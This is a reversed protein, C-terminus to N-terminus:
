ERLKLSSPLRTNVNVRARQIQEAFLGRVSTLDADRFDAGALNTGSFDCNVFQMGNFNANSLDSGLFVTNHLIASNFRAGSLRSAALNASELNSDVFDAATLDCRRLVAQKCNANKFSAFRLGCRSLDVGELDSDRLDAHDISMVSGEKGGTDVWLRHDILAEQLNIAILEEPDIEPTVEIKTEPEIKPAPEQAVRAPVKKQEQPAVEIGATPEQEAEPIEKADPIDAGSVAPKPKATPKAKKAAPPKPKKAVPDPKLLERAAIAAKISREKHSTLDGDPLSALKAESSPNNKSGTKKPQQSPGTKNARRVASPKLTVSASVARRRKEQELDEESMDEPRAPGFYEDKLVFRRPNEMVSTIIKRLRAPDVPQRFVGEIGAEVADRMTRRDLKPAGLLIIVDKGHHNAVTASDRIARITSVGRMGDLYLGVLVIDPKLTNVLEVTQERDDCSVFDAFGLPEIAEKASLSNRESYDAYLVTKNNNDQVTM